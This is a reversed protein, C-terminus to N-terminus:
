VSAIEHTNNKFAGCGFVSLVVYRIQNKKLTELQAKICVLPEDKKLYVENNKGNILDTMEQTYQSNM